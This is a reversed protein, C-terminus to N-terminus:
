HIDLLLMVAAASVACSILFHSSHSRVGSDISEYFIDRRDCVENVVLLLAKDFMGLSLTM